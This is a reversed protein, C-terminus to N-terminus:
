PSADTLSKSLLEVLESKKLKSYGKIGKSKAVEKLEPLKMEALKIAQHESDDDIQSTENTLETEDRPIAITPSQVQERPSSLSRIPSRRTFSSPPRTSIHEAAAAAASEKEKLSDKQTDLFKDGKKAVSKGKQQSRQTRSQHLVDLISEASTSPSPSLRDEAPKPTRKKPNVTEGKSISSQIRKFLALIEEKNPSLSSSQAGDDAGETKPARGSYPNKKNHRGKKGDDARISLVLSRDSIEKISFYPQRFRLPAFASLSPSQLLNLLCGGM